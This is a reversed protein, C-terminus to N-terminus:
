RIYNTTNNIHNGLLKGLDIFTNEIKEDDLIILKDIKFDLIKYSKRDWRAVGTLGVDNYLQSALQKALEKEVEFSITYDDNIRIHVHPNIKGGAVQIEGYITTEGKITELENYSVDTYQNFAALREGNKIFYGDCKYKKAFRQISRLEEISTNPIQNFNKTEFATSILFLAPIVYNKAKHAILKLSISSGKIEEFSVFVFDDDIEPHESKIITTIAREYSVILAAIESSKVKSPKIDNGDFKLEIIETSDDM